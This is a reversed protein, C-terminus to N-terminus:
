RKCINTRWSLLCNYAIRVEDCPRIENMSLSPAQSSKLGGSFFFVAAVSDVFTSPFGKRFEPLLTSEMLAYMRTLAETWFENAESCRGQRYKEDGADKLDTIDSIFVDPDPLKEGKVTVEVETALAPDLGEGEITFNQFGRFHSRFPAPLARHIGDLDYSSNGSRKLPGHLVLRHQSATAAGYGTTRFEGYNALARVLHHLDSGLIVFDCNFEQPSELAVM